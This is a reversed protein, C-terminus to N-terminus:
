NAYPSRLWDVLLYAIGVFAVFGMLVIMWAALTGLPGYASANKLAGWMRYLMFLVMALGLVSFVLTEM